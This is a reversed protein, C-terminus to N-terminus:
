RDGERIFIRELGVCRGTDPDLDVLLAGFQGHGHATDFRVPMQTKMKQIVL